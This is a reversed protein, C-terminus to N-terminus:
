DSPSTPALRSRTAKARAARAETLEGDAAVTTKGSIETLSPRKWATAALLCCALAALLFYPSLDIQEARRLLQLKARWDTGNVAGPLVIPANAAREARDSRRFLGPWWHADSGVPVTTIPMWESGLEGVSSAVY